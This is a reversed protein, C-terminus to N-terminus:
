DGLRWTAAQPPRVGSHEAPPSTAGPPSPATSLSPLRTTLLRRRRSSFPLRKGEATVEREMGSPKCKAKGESRRQGQRNEKEM